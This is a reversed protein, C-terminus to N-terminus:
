DPCGDITIPRAIHLQLAQDRARANISSGRTAECSAPDVLAPSPTIPGIDLELGAAPRRPPAPPSLSIAPSRPPTCEASRATAVAAAAAGVCGASSAHLHARQQRELPPPAEAGDTPRQMMERPLPPFTDPRPTVFFANPHPSTVIVEAHPVAPASPPQLGGRLTIEALSTRVGPELVGAAFLRQHAPQQGVLTRHTGVALQQTAM